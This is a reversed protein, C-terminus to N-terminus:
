QLELKRIRRNLARVDARRAAAGYRLRAYTNAIGTLEDAQRPLATALRLGYDRPGEWSARPHGARALRRCFVQWSRELPDRTHRQWSAWAMLGGLLAVTMGSMLGVLTAWDVRGFGLRALFERQRDPNYGLVRQDWANSLAEWRHRLNRLWGLDRRLMLPLAEGEPLAAALGADIRQPAALATPDVRVWGRGALWVEAWAHADSQRVVLHGDIPNIEGGQYGAVVRAPVGAARMLVTFASAFHECFGRRTDFLFEDVSHRGLLPPRLTYILGSGRLHALVRGLIAADSSAGAALRGALERSRPNYGDPLARASELVPAAEQLGTPTDPWASLEFRSRTQLPRPLLAQNASSFRLPATGAGPFDLALMWRQDHAELTMRYDFRRGSPTYFPTGAEANRAAHWTRGDFRTLVPGRWYRAPPEPLPGDFEARFAIEPSTGLSSISGPSMADSLGSRASTADAPLGWLPGQVRPFLLFLMLMFPMGQALLLAGTRMQARRAAGPDALALLAVIALWTGALASLAIPLSQDEFFLAMQLFFCLLVAARVDRTRRMELLKLCLLLALLAVGPDKGFFHGYEQRVAIGSALAFSLLLLHHPPQRRQRLLLARWGLLVACAGTLWLPLYLAHPALTVGAAILLWVGQETTLSPPTPGAAARPKRGIRQPREARM